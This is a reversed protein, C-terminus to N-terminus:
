ASRKIKAHGAETARQFAVYAASSSFEKRLNANAKWEKESREEVSESADETSADLGDGLVNATASPVIVIPPPAESTSSTAYKNRLTKEAALVAQAADGGTSRGDFKLTNILSEHGQICQAEVDQIRAREASAGEARLAAAVEPHEAAVQEATLMTKGKANTSTPAAGASQKQNAHSKTRDQNLNEILSELTSVGDVLGADIAQQGIFIRGDAMDALVKESTTDRNRAVSDVFIGYMYDLRDQISQLGESSLPAYESAIRKYKGATIETTKVGRAEEARSIDTHSTVVGISGVNTTVDAIYIKSAASGAWYAASCMCGSAWAVIPKQERAAYIADALIQTGDVSGGPSDIALVISHVAEDEIASNINKAILQTSTGGSIQSFLNMKKAMVGDVSIIAVGDVIDFGRQKNDLPRGLRQEVGAIDIKEGRLHTAYIAQIELLKSPEIAWEANLVDILKM